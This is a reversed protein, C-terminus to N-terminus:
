QFYIKIGQQQINEMISTEDEQINNEDLKLFTRILHM